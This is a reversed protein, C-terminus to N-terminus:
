APPLLSSKAVESVVPELDPRWKSLDALQGGEGKHADFAERARLAAALARLWGLELELSQSQEVFLTHHWVVDLAARLELGARRRSQVSVAVTAGLSGCGVVALASLALHSGEHGFAFILSLLAVASALPLVVLELKSGPYTAVGLARGHVADVVARAGVGRARVVTPDQSLSPRLGDGGAAAWAALAEPSPLPPVDARWSALERECSEVTATAEAATVPATSPPAGRAARAELVRGQATAVEAELKERQRLLDVWSYLPAIVEDGVDRTLKRIAEELKGRFREADAVLLPDDGGSDLLAELRERVSVAELWSREPDEERQGIALNLQTKLLRLQRALPSQAAPHNGSLAYAGSTPGPPM